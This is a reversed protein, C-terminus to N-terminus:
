GKRSLLLREALDTTVWEEVILGNDFRSVVMDRWVLHRGSAPFGKYAGQQTGRLTRQWAVRDGGEVLLDVEARIDPFAKRIQAIAGQVIEHGGSYDQDTLHVVYSQSFFKGIAQMEGKEFLSTTAAQIIPSLSRSM